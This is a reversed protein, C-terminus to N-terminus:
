HWSRARKGKAVLHAIQCERPFPCDRLIRGFRARGVVSAKTILTMFSFAASLNIPVISTRFAYWAPRDKKSWISRLTMYIPIGYLLPYPLLFQFYWPATWRYDTLHCSFPTVFRDLTVSTRRVLFAPSSPHLPRYLRSSRCLHRFLRIIARVM